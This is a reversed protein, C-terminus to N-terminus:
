GVCCGGCTRQFRAPNITGCASTYQSSGVGCKTRRPYNAYDIDIVAAYPQVVRRPPRVGPTVGKALALGKGAPKPWGTLEELWTASIKLHVGAGSKLLARRM